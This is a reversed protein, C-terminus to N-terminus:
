GFIAPAPARIAAPVARPATVPLRRAALRYGAGAAVAAASVQSDAPWVEDAAHAPNYLLVALMVDQEHKRM